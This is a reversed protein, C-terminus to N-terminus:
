LRPSPFANVWLVDPRFWDGFIHRGTAVWVVASLLTPVSMVGGLIMLVARKQQANWSESRLLERSAVVAASRAAIPRLPAQRRATTV